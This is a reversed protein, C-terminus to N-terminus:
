INRMDSIELAPWGDAHHWGTLQEGIYAYEIDKDDFGRTYIKFKNIIFEKQNFSLHNWWFLAPSMPEYQSM